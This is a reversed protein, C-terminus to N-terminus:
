WEKRKSYENVIRRYASPSIYLECDWMDSRDKMKNWLYDVMTEIGADTLAVEDENVKRLCWRRVYERFTDGALSLAICWLMGLAVGLALLIVVILPANIVM